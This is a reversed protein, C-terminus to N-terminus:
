SGLSNYLGNCKHSPLSDKFFNIDDLRVNDKLLVNQTIEKWNVSLSIMHVREEFKCVEELQKLM